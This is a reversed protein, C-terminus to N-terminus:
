ASLGKLHSVAVPLLFSPELASCSRRTSECAPRNSRFNALLLSFTPVMAAQGFEQPALIRALVVTAIIQIALTLGGSLVTVGAGRVALRRLASGENAAPLFAGNADFPKM